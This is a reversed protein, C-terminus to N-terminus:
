FIQVWLYLNKFPLKLVLKLFIKLLYQHFLDFPNTQITGNYSKSLICALWSPFHFINDLLDASRVKGQLRAPAPALRPPILLQRLLLHAAQPLPLGLFRGGSLSSGLHSTLCWGQPWKVMSLLVCFLSLTLPWIFLLACLHKHCKSRSIISAQKLLCTFELYHSQTM